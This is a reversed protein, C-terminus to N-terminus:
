LGTLTISTRTHHRRNLNLLLVATAEVYRTNALAGGDIPRLGPMRRVLTMVETRAAVDDACVVVDADHPTALDQLSKASLTQFASAVRATPAARQILEATSPAGAVPSLEFCGDRFTVPVVVDLVLKGALAPAARELLPSLGAFPVAIVVADAAAAIALNEGADVEAGPVARRIATATAEARTADRSGIALPIAAAALRLALGQGEPGTGGLVAFRPM